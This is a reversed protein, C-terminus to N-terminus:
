VSALVTDFLWLILVLGRFGRWDWGALGVLMILLCVNSHEATLPRLEHVFMSGNKNALVVTKTSFDEKTFALTRLRTGILFKGAM